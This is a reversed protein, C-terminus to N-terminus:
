EPFSQKFGREAKKTHQMKSLKNAFKCWDQVQKESIRFRATTKWNDGCTHTFQVINLMFSADYSNHKCKLM